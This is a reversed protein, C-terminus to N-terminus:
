VILLLSNNSLQLPGASHQNTMARSVVDVQVRSGALFLGDWPVGFYFVGQRPMDLLVQPQSPRLGFDNPLGRTEDTM